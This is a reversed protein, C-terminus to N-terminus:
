TARKTGERGGFLSDLILGIVGLSIAVDAINFAPWHSSGLNELAWVGAGGSLYVDFFDAVAGWVFRDIANGVAGGAVLALSLRLLAGGSKMRVLWVCLAAAVALNIVGLLYKSSEGGDSFLGFSVGTNWVMVLNFFSLLEIPQCGYPLGALIQCGRESMVGVLLHKSIQDAAVICAALIFPWFPM